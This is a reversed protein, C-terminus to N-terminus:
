TYGGGPDCWVVTLCVKERHHPSEVMTPCLVLNISCGSVSITFRTVVVVVVVMSVLTVTLVTVRPGRPNGGRGVRGGSGSIPVSLWSESAALMGASAAAAPNRGSHNRM